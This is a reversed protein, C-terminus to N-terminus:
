SSAGNMNLIVYQRGNSLLGKNPWEKVQGGTIEKAIKDVSSANNCGTSKSRGYDNVISPSFKVCKGRVYVKMYEQNGEVNFNPSINVIFEKVLKEYCPGIDTVSKMLGVVQILDMIEKCDLAKTGLGREYAVRRQFAYKWNHVSTEYHFSVDLPAVVVNM